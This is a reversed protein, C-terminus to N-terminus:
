SLLSKLIRGYMEKYKLCVVLSAAQRPERHNIFSQMGGMLYVLPCIGDFPVLGTPLSLDRNRSHAKTDNPVPCFHWCDFKFVSLLFLFTEPKPLKFCNTLSLNCDHFEFAAGLLHLM